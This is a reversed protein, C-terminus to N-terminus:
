KKCIVNMLRKCGVRYFLIKKSLIFFILPNKNNIKYAGRLKIKSNIERYLSLVRSNETKERTKQEVQELNEDTKQSNYKKQM